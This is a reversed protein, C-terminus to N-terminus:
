IEGMLAKNGMGPARLSLCCDPGSGHECCGVVPGYGSDSLRLGSM